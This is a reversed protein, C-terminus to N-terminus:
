RRGAPRADVMVGQARSWTAMAPITMRARHYMGTARIGASGTTSTITTAATWQVPSGQRDRYGVAVSPGPNNADTIPWIRNVFALGKDRINAEKTDLTAALSPGSLLAARHLIDFAGAILKGGTWAESDLPYPLTDLTGFQDLQDLTYGTTLARVLLDLVIGDVLAWRNLAYHYAIIKNPQGGVAANDPYAWYVVKRIPDAMSSMRYAYNLNLDNSIFRDVKQDGIPLSATGNFAFFGNNALYYIVSGVPCISGPFSTGHVTDVRSFAFITPAGSYIGVWINREQFVVLDIGPLGGVIGHIWGGDGLLDQFDSQVQAAAVTGPTPFITTGIGGWWVRQPRNGNINDTTNALVVFDRAVAVYRANPAGSDMTGFASSSGMVYSQPPAQYNTAIMAEGFQAFSWIGDVGTNYGLSNSVDVWGRSGPPQHYLKTKDGAFGHVNDNDDRAFAAGQATGILSSSYPNLSPMPEYSEETLPLANLINPSGPNNFDPQDPLWEGFPLVPM